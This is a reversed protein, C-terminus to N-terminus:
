NEPLPATNQRCATQPVSTLASKLAHQIAHKAYMGFSEHSSHEKFDNKKGIMAQM